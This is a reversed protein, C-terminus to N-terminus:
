CMPVEACLGLPDREFYEWLYSHDREVGPNKHIVHQTYMVVVNNFLTNTQTDNTLQHRIRIRVKPDKKAAPYGIIPYEYANKLRTDAM